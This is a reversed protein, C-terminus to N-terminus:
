KFHEGSAVGFGGWERGITGDMTTRYSPVASRYSYILLGANGASVETGASGAIQQTSLGAHPSLSVSVCPPPPPLLPSPLAARLFVSGKVCLCLGLPGRTFTWAWRCRAFWLADPSKRFEEERHTWFLLMKHKKLTKPKSLVQGGESSKQWM